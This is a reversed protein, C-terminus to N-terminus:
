RLWAPLNSTLGTVRHLTAARVLRSDPAEGNAPRLTYGVRMGAEVEVPIDVSVIAPDGTCGSRGWVSGDRTVECLVRPPRSAALSLSLVARCSEAVAVTPLSLQGNAISVQSLDLTALACLSLPTSFPTQALRSEHVFVLEQPRPRADLDSPGRVLDYNDTFWGRYGETLLRAVLQSRSNRVTVVIHPRDEALLRRAGDMAHSEAGEADIHILSPHLDFTAAFADLSVAPAEEFTPAPATAWLSDASADVGAYVASVGGSAERVAAHFLQTNTCGNASLFAQCAAISRPSAEFACVAGRLGVVRSLLRTVAGHYAGVDFVTQGPRVLDRLILRTSPALGDEVHWSASAGTLPLRSAPQSDVAGWFVCVDRVGLEWVQAWIQDAWLSAIVVPLGSAELLREPGVVAVGDVLSGHSQVNNDLFWRVRVDHQELIARAQRGLSGAGFVVVDKLFPIRNDLTPLTALPLRSRQSSM